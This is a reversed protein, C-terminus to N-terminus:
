ILIVKLKITVALYENEVFRDIAPLKNLVYNSAYDEEDEEDPIENPLKLKRRKKQIVKKM